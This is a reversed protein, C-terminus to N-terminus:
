GFRWWNPEDIRPSWPAASEEFKKEAESRFSGAGSSEVHRWRLHHCPLDPPMAGQAVQSREPLRHEKLQNGSTGTESRQNKTGLGSVHHHFHLSIPTLSGGGTHYSSTWMVMNTGPITATAKKWIKLQHLAGFVGFNFFVTDKQKTQLVHADWVM